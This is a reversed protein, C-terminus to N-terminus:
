LPRGKPTRRLLPKKLLGLPESQRFTEADFHTDFLIRRFAAFNFFDPM